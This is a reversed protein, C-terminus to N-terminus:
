LFFATPHPLIPQFGKAYLDWLLSVLFAGVTCSTALAFATCACLAFRPGAAPGRGLLGTCGNCSVLVCEQSVGGRSSFM